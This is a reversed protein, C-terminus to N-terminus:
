RAVEPVGLLRRAEAIDSATVSRPKRKHDLDRKLAVWAREAAATEEYDRASAFARGPSTFGGGDLRGTEVDFRWPSRFRSRGDSITVWKRAVKDVVMEVHKGDIGRSGDFVVYVKDGVKPKEM